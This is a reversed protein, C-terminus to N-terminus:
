AAAKRDPRTANIQAIEEDSPAFFAGSTVGNISDFDIEVYRKLSLRFLYIQKITGDERRETYDQFRESDYTKKEFEHMYNHIIGLTKKGLKHIATLGHNFVICEQKSVMLADWHMFPSGKVFISFNSEEMILSDPETENSDHLGLRAPNPTETFSLVKVGDSNDYEYADLYSDDLAFIHQHVHDISKSPNAPHRTYTQVTEQGTNAATQVRDGIYDDIRRRVKRSLANLSIVHEDPILLEHSKVRRDGWFAYPPTSNIVSFGEEHHNITQTLEPCFVCVSGPINAKGVTKAYAVGSGDPSRFVGPM